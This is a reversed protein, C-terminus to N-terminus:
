KQSFATKSITKNGIQGVYKKNLKDAINKEKKHIAQDYAWCLARKASEIANESLENGSFVYHGAMASAFGYNINSSGKVPRELEVEIYRDTASKIIGKLFQGKYHANISIRAKKIREYKEEGVEIEKNLKEIEKDVYNEIKKIGKSVIEKPITKSIYYEGGNKSPGMYTFSIEGDEWWHSKFTLDFDNRKKLSKFNM